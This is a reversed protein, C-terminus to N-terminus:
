HNDENEVMSLAKAFANKFKSDAYNFGGDRFENSCQAGLLALKRNIDQPAKKVRNLIEIQNKLARHLGFHFAQEKSAHYCHYGAPQLTSPVNHSQIVIDHCTDVKRDCYLEDKSDLFVVKPSFCNLGNIFSDTFYDHLPAQLGTIRKDTDFIDCITRIIRKNALVTDADVKVFLDFQSQIARWAAWLQNHAEKEPLNTFVRSHIEVDEQSYIADICMDFDAEGCYLTGVFVKKM